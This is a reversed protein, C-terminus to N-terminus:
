RRRGLGLGHGRTRTRTKTMTMTLLLAVGSSRAKIVSKIMRMGSDACAGQPCSPLLLLLLLFLRPPPIAKQMYKQVNELAKLAQNDM